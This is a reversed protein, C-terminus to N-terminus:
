GCRARPGDLQRTARSRTPTSSSAAGSSARDVETLRRPRLRRGLRSSRRRDPPRHDGAGRRPRAPLDRRARRLRRAQSMRFGDRASRWRRRADRRRRAAAPLHRLGAHAHAAAGDWFAAHNRAHDDNNGVLINFIIRAFLERLTARRCRHLPRPDIRALDAYSAYRAEIEDLGLITLASVMARRRATRRCATSASSWCCTRASCARRARGRAVDLGARRALEM